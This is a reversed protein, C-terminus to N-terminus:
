PGASDSPGRNGKDEPYPEEVPRQGAKGEGLLTLAMPVGVAAVEVHGCVQCRAVHTPTHTVSTLVICSPAVTLEASGEEVTVWALVQPVWSHAATLSPKPTPSPLSLRPYSSPLWAATWTAPTQPPAHPTSPPALSPIWCPPPKPSAHHHALQSLTVRRRKKGEAQSQSGMPEWSPPRQSGWSSGARPSTEPWHRQM